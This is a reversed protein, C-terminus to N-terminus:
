GIPALTLLGDRPTRGDLLEGILLAVRSRVSREADASFFARHCTTIVRPLRLVQSWDDSDWPNEPSFVDIAAGAVRGDRLAAALAKPEILKGRAANVLLAGTKIYSLTDVNILNTTEASLPCHLTVIDAEGLLAQLSKAATAGYGEIQDVSLYPDYVITRHYHPSLRRAVARGIRGFGVIGLTCRITRRPTGGAYIDFHGATLSAHQEILGRELALALATTHTSVEDVCYDPVNYGAIGFENLLSINLNDFGVGQRIVARLAPGAATLLERSVECRYIVLVTAGSILQTFREGTFRFRSSEFVGADISAHQLHVREVENFRECRLRVGDILWPPDTYVIKLADTM